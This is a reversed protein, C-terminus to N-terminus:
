TQRDAVSQAAWSDPKWFVIRHFDDDKEGAEKIERYSIYGQGMIMGVLEEKYQGSKFQVSDNVDVHLRINADPPLITDIHWATELTRMAEAILRQRLPYKDKSDYSRMVDKHTIIEGGSFKSHAILATVFTAKSGRVKSDSGIHFARGREYNSAVFEAVNSKKRPIGFGRWEWDNFDPYKENKKM